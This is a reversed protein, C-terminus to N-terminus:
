GANITLGVKTLRILILEAVGPPRAGVDAIGKGATVTAGTNASLDITWGPDTDSPVLGGAKAVPQLVGSLDTQMRKFFEGKLGDINRGMFKEMVADCRWALVTMVDWWCGERWTVEDPSLSRDGYIRPSPTAVIPIAADDALSSRQDTTMAYEPGTGYLAVGFEGAPPQWVGVQGIVAARRGAYYGEPPVTRIGAEGDAPLGWWPGVLRLTQAGVTTRLSRAAAQIQAPTSGVAAAIVGSRPHAPSNCHAAIGVAVASAPQGPIAVIGPGFEPTFRDLGALLHTVTVNAVDDTGPMFTYSAPTPNNGPAVTVSGLNAGRVYNSNAMAAVAATPSSLNKFSEVEAGLLSITINFTAASFGATVVATLGASWPGPSSARISMTQPGPAGAELLVAIGSDPTAPGIVRSFVVRGTGENNGFYSRASDHAFGGTTRPGTLELLESYSRAVIPKTVDGRSSTGVLFLQAELTDDGSGPGASAGIQVQVGTPM